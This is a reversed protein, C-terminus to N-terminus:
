AAGATRGERKCLPARPREAVVRGSKVVADIMAGEKLDIAPQDVVKDGANDLILLAREGPVKECTNAEEGALERRVEIFYEGDFGRGGGSFGKGRIKGAGRALRNGCRREIEKALIAVPFAGVEDDNVRRACSKFALEAREENFDICRMENVYRAIWGRERSVETHEEGAAIGSCGNSEGVQEGLGEM